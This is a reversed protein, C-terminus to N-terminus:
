LSQEQLNENEQKSDIRRQREELCLEIIGEYDEELKKVRKVMEEDKSAKIRTYIEYLKNLNYMSTKEPGRLTATHLIDDLINITRKYSTHFRMFGPIDIRNKTGTKLEKSVTDWQYKFLKEM